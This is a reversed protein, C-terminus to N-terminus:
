QATLRGFHVRCDYTRKGGNESRDDTTGCGDGGRPEGLTSLSPAFRDAGIVSEASVERRERHWDEYWVAVGHAEALAVLDDDM